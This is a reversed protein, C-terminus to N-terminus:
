YIWLKSKRIKFKAIFGCNQDGEGIQIEIQNTPKMKQISITWNISKNNNKKLICTKGLDYRDM